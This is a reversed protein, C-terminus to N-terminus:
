YNERRRSYRSSWWFCFKLTQNVPMGNGIAVNFFFFM